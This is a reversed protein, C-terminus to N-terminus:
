EMIGSRSSIPDVPITMKLGRTARIRRDILLAENLLTEKM